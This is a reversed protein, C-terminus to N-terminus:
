VTAAMALVRYMVETIQREMDQANEKLGGNFVINEVMKGLNINVTTSRTGGKVSAEAGASAKAMAPEPLGGSGQNVLQNLQGNVGVQSGSIAKVDADDTKGTIWRYFKEIGRLAPMIVKNFVWDVAKVIVQIIDYIKGIIKFMFNFLDKILVSNSIFEFLKGVINSVVSVVTQVAPVVHEWFVDGIGSVQNAMAGFNAKLTKIMDIVPAFTAELVPAMEEIVDMIYEVGMEIPKIVKELVPLMNDIMDMGLDALPMLASEIKIAINGVHEKLDGLRNAAQKLNGEPTAALAENMGGVSQSIVDALTAVRQEETGYKLLHEQAADFKYGYRSLAGVQGDMVKGMMSAIQTAQEQSANLGYQQALMDNMVPILKQLSEIKSLYTGLEQAGALQVEDGIVGLRQQASALDKISQIQDATAGMTNRMVKGLKAEAEQQANNAEIFERAAGTVKKILEFTQNLNSLKGGIGALAGKARQAAGELSRTQETMRGLRELANGVVKVYYEVSKTAM